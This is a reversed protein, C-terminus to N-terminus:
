QLFSTGDSPDALTGQLCRQPTQTGERILDKLQIRRDKLTMSLPGM